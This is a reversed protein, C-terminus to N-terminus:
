WTASRPASRPIRSWGTRWNWPWRAQRGDPRQVVSGLVVADALRARWEPYNMLSAETPAPSIPPVELGRFLGSRELDARIIPTLGAGGALTSEGPFPVVAIPIRQAGAGTIEISLQARAFPSAFLLFVGAFLPALRFLM